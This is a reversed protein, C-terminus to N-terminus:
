FNGEARQGFSVNQFFHCALPILLHHCNKPDPHSMLSCVQVIIKIDRACLEQRGVTDQSCLSLRSALSQALNGKPDQCYPPFISAFAPFCRELCSRWAACRQVTRRLSHSICAICSLSTPELHILCHELVDEALGTSALRLGTPLVALETSAAPHSPILLRDHQCPPSFHFSKPKKQPLITALGMLRLPDSSVGDGGSEKATAPASTRKGRAHTSKLM